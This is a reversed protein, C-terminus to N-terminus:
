KPASFSLNFYEHPSLSMFPLWDTYTSIDNLMLSLPYGALEPTLTAVHFKNAPITEGYVTTRAYISRTIVYKMNVIIAKPYRNTPIEPHELYFENTHKEITEPSLGDYAYVFM